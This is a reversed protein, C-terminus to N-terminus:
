AKFRGRYGVVLLTYDSCLRRAQLWCGINPITVTGGVRQPRLIVLPHGQHQTRGINWNPQFWRVPKVVHPRHDCGPRFRFNPRFIAAAVLPCARGLTSPIRQGLNERVPRAQKLQFLGGASKIGVTLVIIKPAIRRRHIAPLIHSM